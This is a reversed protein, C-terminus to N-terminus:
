IGFHDRILKLNLRDPLLRKGLGVIRAEKGVAYRLRPRRATLAHAVADAVIAPGPAKPLSERITQECRRRREAYPSDPPSMGWDMVDNFATDIDGPEILHVSVGFPHIENALSLVLAEIAAKSASYHAQFPIPARGALSGVFLLRGAGRSRMRALVPKALRLVGFVNTEFQARARELSTEEVPGFIGFGANCVLGDLHPTRAFVSALGAEVSADDCVDMAVWEIERVGSGVAVSARFASGADPPVEKDPAAPAATAPPKRSTGFVRWGLELMRTAMASGLGSSAGTILVCPREAM